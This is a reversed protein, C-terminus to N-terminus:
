SGPQQGKMTQILQKLKLVEDELNHVKQKNDEVSEDEVQERPDLNTEVSKGDDRPMQLLDGQVFTKGLKNQIDSTEMRDLM